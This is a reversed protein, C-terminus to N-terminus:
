IGLPESVVESSAAKAGSRVNWSQRASRHPGWHRKPTLGIAGVFSRGLTTM